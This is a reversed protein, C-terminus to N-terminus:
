GGGGRSNDSTQDSRQNSWEFFLRYFNSDAKPSCKLRGRADYIMMGGMMMMHHHHHPSAILALAASTAAEEAGSSEERQEEQRGLGCQSHGLLLQHAADTLMMSFGGALSFGGAM